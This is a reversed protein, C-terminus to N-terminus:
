YVDIAIRYRKRDAAGFGVQKDYTASFLMVQCTSFDLRLKELFTDFAESRVMWDAEDIVLVM